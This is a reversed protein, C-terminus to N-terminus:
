RCVTTTIIDHIVKANANTVLFRSMVNEIQRDQSLGQDIDGCTKKIAAPVDSPTMFGLAPAIAPNALMKQRAAEVDADSVGSVTQSAAASPGSSTDSSSDASAGPSSGSSSASSCGTLVALAVLAAVLSRPVAKSM